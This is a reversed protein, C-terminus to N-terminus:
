LDEGRVTKRGNAQARKVAMELLWEVLGSAHEGLDGSSMMGKGNVYEKIKSVVVMAMKGPQFVLLDEGRVTKRGNATAAKVSQGLWMELTKSVHESLDGSSMMGKGNIYEKIKSNVVYSM